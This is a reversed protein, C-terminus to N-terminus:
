PQEEKFMDLVQTNDRLIATIATALLGVGKENLPVEVSDAAGHVVEHIITLRKSQDSLSDEIRIKANDYQINGNLRRTDTEDLLNHVYEVAFVRAGITITTPFKM